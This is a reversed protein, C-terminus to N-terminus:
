AAAIVHMMVLIATQADTAGPVTPIYTFVPILSVVFVVAVVTSGLFYFLSNAGVAAVVTGAGLLAFPIRKVAPSEAHLSLSSALSSM